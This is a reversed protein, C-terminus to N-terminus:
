NITLREVVSKIDQCADKHLVLVADKTEVIICDQMGVVAVKRKTAHVYSNRVKETIVDGITVNGATDAQRHEWLSDWSGIDSWGADLSVVVADQVKEMVAYDISDSHCAAFLEDALKIFKGESKATNMVKQCTYFIEPAHTQLVKLFSSAQFMFMGSNWYYQGSNVYKKAVEVNPKEVFQELWHAQPDDLVEGFKIYGYGTEPRNPQIGFTVLKKQAAYKKALEVAVHFNAVNDLVHDSPLVLLIPNEYKDAVHMAALAVAPATNRGIPELIIAGASLEIAQLQKTVLDGHQKNCVIIPESIDSLGQLREVTNQLLSQKGVLSAFQKPFGSHSLPWLRSGVGGSLIIPIIM